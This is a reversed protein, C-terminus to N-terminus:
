VKLWTKTERAITNTQIEIDSADCVDAAAPRLFVGCYAAQGHKNV